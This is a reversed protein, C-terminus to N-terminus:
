ALTSNKRVTGINGRSREPFSIQTKQNNNVKAGEVMPIPKRENQQAVIVLPAYLPQCPLPWGATYDDGISIYVDYGNNSVAADNYNYIRFGLDPLRERGLTSGNSIMNCDYYFPLQVETCPSLATDSMVMGLCAMRENSLTPTSEEYPGLGTTYNPSFMILERNGYPADRTGAFSDKLVLKFRLSGRHFLWQKLYMNWDSLNSLAMDFPRLNSNTNGGVDSAFFHYRKMLEPWSQVEEGMVVGSQVCTTAPVLGEFPARFEERSDAISVKSMQGVIEIKGSTEMRRDVLGPDTATMTPWLYTPKAFRIDESGSVEVLVDVTPTCNPIGGTPPVKLSLIVQGNHYDWNTIPPIIANPHCVPLWPRERLFPVTFTLSSDGKIDFVKNIVDGDSDAALAGAYTPDPIWSL